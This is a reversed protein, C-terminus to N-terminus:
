PVRNTDACFV